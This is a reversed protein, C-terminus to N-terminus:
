NLADHQAKWNIQGFVANMWKNRTQHYEQIPVRSANRWLVQTADRTIAVGQIHLLGNTTSTVMAAPEKMRARQETAQQDAIINLQAPWSLKDAPTSQDQYSKVHLVRTGDQKQLLRSAMNTIDAEPRLKQKPMIQNWPQSLRDVMSKNDIYLQWSTEKTQIIEHHQLIAVIFLMVSAAGYGEARFSNALTPHAEAPGRGIVMVSDASAVVWRYTSIESRPDYGGDAAM